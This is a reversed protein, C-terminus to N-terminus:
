QPIKVIVRGTIGDRRLKEFVLGIESFELVEIRPKIKGTIALQLLEDMQKEAGM